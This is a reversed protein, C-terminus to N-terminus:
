QRHGSVYTSCSVFETPGFQIGTCSNSCVDELVYSQNSMYLSWHRAVGSEVLIESAVDKIM